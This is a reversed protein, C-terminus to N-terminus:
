DDIKEINYAINAQQATDFCPKWRRTDPREGWLSDHRGWLSGALFLCPLVLVLLTIRSYTM